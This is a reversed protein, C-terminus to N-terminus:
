ERPCEEEMREYANILSDVAELTDELQELFRKAHALWGKWTKARVVRRWLSKRHNSCFDAYPIVRMDKTIGNVGYYAALPCGNCNTLIPTRPEYAEVLSPILYSKCLPCYEAFWDEGIEKEMVAPDARHWKNQRSVWRIMRKWHAISLELLEKDHLLKEYLTM